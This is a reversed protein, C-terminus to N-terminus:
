KFDLRFAFQMPILVNNIGCTHTRQTPIHIHRYIICKYYIYMYIYIYIPTDRTMSTTLAM